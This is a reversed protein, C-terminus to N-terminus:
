ILNYCRSKLDELKCATSELLTHSAWRQFFSNVLLFIQRSLYHSHLMHPFTPFFFKLSLFSWIISDSTQRVPRAVHPSPVHLCSHHGGHKIACPCLCNGVVSSLLIPWMGFMLLEWHGLPQTVDRKEGPGLSPLESFIRLKVNINRPFSKM